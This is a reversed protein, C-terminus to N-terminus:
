HIILEVQFISFIISILPKESRKNLIIAFTSIESMKPKFRAISYYNFNTTLYVNTGEM